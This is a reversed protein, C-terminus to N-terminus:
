KGKTDLTFNVNNSIIIDNKGDFYLDKGVLSNNINKINFKHSNKAIQSVTNYELSPTTLIFENNRNFIVDNLFTLNNGKKLIYKASMTDTIIEKKDQLKMIITTDFLEDKNKFHLAKKSQVIQTVEKNNINYMISDLFTIAPMEKNSKDLPINTFITTVTLLTVSIILLSFVFLKIAM